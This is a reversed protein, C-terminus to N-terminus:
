DDPLLKADTIIKENLLKVKYGKSELFRKIEQGVNLKKEDELDKGINIVSQASALIELIEPNKDISISVEFAGTIKAIKKIEEELPGMTFFQRTKYDLTAELIRELNARTNQDYFATLEQRCIQKYKGSILNNKDEIFDILFKYYKEDIKQFNEVLRIYDTLKDILDFYFKLTSKIELKDDMKKIEPYYKKLILNIKKNFQACLKAIDDSNKISKKNLLELLYGEKEPLEKFIQHIKELYKNEIYSM